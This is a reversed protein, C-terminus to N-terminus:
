VDRHQVQEAAKQVAHSHTRHVQYFFGYIKGAPSYPDRAFWSLLARIVLAAVLINSFMYIAYVLTTQMNKIKDGLIKNGGFDFGREDHNAAIDVSEPAFIFINNAVKQVNGNLSIYCREFIM